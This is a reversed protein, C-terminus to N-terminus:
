PIRRASRKTKKSHLSKAHYHSIYNMKEAMDRVRKKMEASIDDADTLTRSVTARSVRLLKAITSQNVISM